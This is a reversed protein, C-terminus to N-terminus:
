TRRRLCGPPSGCQGCDLGDVAGDVQLLEPQREDVLVEACSVLSGAELEGVEVVFLGLPVGSEGVRVRDLPVADPRDHLRARHEQVPVRLEALADRVFRSKLHDERSTDVGVLV